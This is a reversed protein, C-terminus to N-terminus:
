RPGGEPRGDDPPPAEGAGPALGPQPHSPPDVAPNERVDGDRRGADGEDDLERPFDGSEPPPDSEFPELLESM